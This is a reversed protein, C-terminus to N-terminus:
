DHNGPTTMLTEKNHKIFRNIIGCAYEYAEVQGALHGDMFENDPWQEAKAENCLSQLKDSIAMLENYITM